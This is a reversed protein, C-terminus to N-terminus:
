EVIIKVDVKEPFDHVWVIDRVTFRTNDYFFADGKNPIAPAEVTLQFGASYEPFRQSQRANFEYKVFTIKM